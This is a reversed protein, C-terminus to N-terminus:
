QATPECKRWYPVSECRDKLLDMTSPVLHPKLVLRLEPYLILGALFGDCFDKSSGEPVWAQAVRRLAEIEQQTPFSDAPATPHEQNVVAVPLEDNDEDVYEEARYKAKETLFEIGYSLWLHKRADQGIREWPITQSLETVEEAPSNYDLIDLQEEYWNLFQEDLKLLTDRKLPRVTKKELSEKDLGEVGIEKLKNAWAQWNSFGPKISTGPEISVPELQLFTPDISTLLENGESVIANYADLTKAVWKGFDNILADNYADIAQRLREHAKKLRVVLEQALQAQETTLETM